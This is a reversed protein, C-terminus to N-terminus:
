FKTKAFNRKSKEIAIPVIFLSTVENIALNFFRQKKQQAISLRTLIVM